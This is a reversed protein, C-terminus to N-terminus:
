SLFKLTVNALLKMLNQVAAGQILIHFVNNAKETYCFVKAKCFENVTNYSDTTPTLPLYLFGNRPDSDSTLCHGEPCIKRYVSFVCSLNKEQVDKLLKWHKNIEKVSKLHLIEESISHRQRKGYQFDQDNM